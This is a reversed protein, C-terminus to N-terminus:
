FSGIPIPIPLQHLHDLNGLTPLFNRWCFINLSFFVVNLSFVIRGWYIEVVLFVIISFGEEGLSGEVM